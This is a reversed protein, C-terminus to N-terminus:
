LLNTNLINNIIEELTDRNAYFSKVNDFECDKIISPTWYDGELMFVVAFNENTCKSICNQTVGVEFLISDQTGGKQSTYKCFMYIEFIEGNTVNIYTGVGDLAKSDKCRNRKIQVPTFFGEHNIYVGKNGNGKSISDFYSLDLKLEKNQEAINKFCNKIIKKQEKEFASDRKDFRIEKEMLINM